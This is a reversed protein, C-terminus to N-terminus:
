RDLVVVVSTSFTSGLGCDIVVGGVAVAVASSSVSPTVLSDGAVIVSPPEITM